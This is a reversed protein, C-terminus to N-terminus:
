AAAGAGPGTEDTAWAPAGGILKLVQGNAGAPLTGWTGTDSTYLLSGPPTSSTDIGLGGRAVSVTGTSLNSANLHTLATILDGTATGLGAGVLLDVAGNTLLTSFTESYIPAGGTSVKYLRVTLSLLGCQPTGAADTLIGQLRVGVFPV